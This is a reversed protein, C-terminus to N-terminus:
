GILKNRCRKGMSTIAGQHMLSKGFMKNMKQDCRVEMGGYSISIGDCKRFNGINQLNVMFALNGVGLM